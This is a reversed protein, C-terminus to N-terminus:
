LEFIKGTDIDARYWTDSGAVTMEVTDDRMCISLTNGEQTKLLIPEFVERIVLQGSPTTEIKM